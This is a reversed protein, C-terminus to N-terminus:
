HMTLETISMSQLRTWSIISLFYLVKVDLEATEEWLLIFFFCINFYKLIKSRYFNQGRIFIFINIKSLSSHIDIKSLSNFYKVQSTKFRKFLELDGNNM